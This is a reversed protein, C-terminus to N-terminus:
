TLRYWVVLGILAAAVLALTVHFWDRRRVSEIVSCAAASVMWAVLLGLGLLVGARSWEPAALTGDPRIPATLVSVITAAGITLGAWFAMAALSPREGERLWQLLAAGLPLGFGVTLLVFSLVMSARIPDFGGAYVQPRYGGSAIAVVSGFAICAVSVGILGCFIRLGISGRRAKTTRSAM